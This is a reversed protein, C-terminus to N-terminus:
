KRRRPKIIAVIALAPLLVLLIKPWRLVMPITLLVIVVMWGPLRILDPYALWWVALVAGLRWCTMTVVSDSGGPVFAWVAGGAVFLVVALIGVILRRISLAPPTQQM